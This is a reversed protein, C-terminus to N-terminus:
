KTVWRVKEDISARKGKPWKGDFKGLFLFGMFKDKPELDFFPKAEELYTIGGSGWYCGLNFESITLLMNQVAAATANTEEIEPLQGGIKVGIAIVHSCKLPNQQLKEFVAEKYTGKKMAVEKYLNSQYEALKKIGEGKFVTFRWPETYKHTPAWNASELIQHIEEDDIIEGSFMNPYISRRNKITDLITTM